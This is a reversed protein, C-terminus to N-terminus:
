APAGLAVKVTGADDVLLPVPELHLAPDELCRGAGRVEYRHGCVCQLTGESLAGDAVAEGCAPCAPRYAYSAGDLRVFLVPEGEVDRLAAGGGDLDGLAGASAWEAGGTRPRLADSVGLQLLALAPEPEVAGAAEIGTVDPAKREIADEIALKLTATSSPCGSCSGQLALRVVGDDVGLLEVDGGHSELYPRVEDLARRVRAELREPHLGHLLLLHSVLEDGAVAGAMAGGDDHEAVIAVLRSLGEGYLDALAQALETAVERGRADALAEVSGLLADVRAVLEGEDAM